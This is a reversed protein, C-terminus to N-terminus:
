KVHPGMCKSTKIIMKDKWSVANKESMNRGSAMKRQPGLLHICRKKQEIKMKKKRWQNIGDSLLQIEKDLINLLQIECTAGSIFSIEWSDSIIKMQTNEKESEM